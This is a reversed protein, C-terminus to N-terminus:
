QNIVSIGLATRAARVMLYGGDAWGGPSGGAEQPVRRCKVEM